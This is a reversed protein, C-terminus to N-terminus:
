LRMGLLLGRVSDGTFPCPEPYTSFNIATVVGRLALLQSVHYCGPARTPAPASAGEKGPDATTSVFGDHFYIRGLDDAFPKLKEVAELLGPALDPLNNWNATDLMPAVDPWEGTLLQTRLWAGDSFMFSVCGDGVLLCEPERGIRLLEDVAAEPVNLLESLGAGLWCEALVVNNTAFASDGRLLVGRAWPRSADQGIYPQLAKLAPLLPVPLVVRRGEPKIDPWDAVDFCPVFVGVSGSHVVLKKLEADYHLSVTGDCADIAKVFHDALPAAEIDCPVPTCLALEGNFGMIRDAGLRFSRLVPVFDKRAVAGRVFSLQEKM